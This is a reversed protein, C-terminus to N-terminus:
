HGGRLYSGGGISVCCLTLAAIILTFFSAVRVFVVGATPTAKRTAVVGWIATGLLSCSFAALWPDGLRAVPGALGCTFVVSFTFGGLGGILKAGLDDDDDPRRPRRWPRPIPPPADDTRGHTM